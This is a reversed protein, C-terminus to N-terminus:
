GVLYYSYGYSGNVGYTYSYNYNYTERNSGYYYYYGANTIYYGYTFVPLWGASITSYYYYGTRYYTYYHLEPNGSKYYTYCGPTSYTYQACTYYTAGNYVYYYGVIYYYTGTWTYFEPGMQYVRVYYGTAPATGATYGYYTATVNMYASAGIGTSGFSPTDRAVDHTIGGVSVRIGSGLPHSAGVLPASLVTDSVAKANLKKGQSLSNKDFLPIVVTQTGKKAHLVASTDPKFILNCANSYWEGNTTEGGNSTTTYVKVRYHIESFSYGNSEVQDCIGALSATNDASYVVGLTNWGTASKLKYMLEYATQGTVGQWSVNTNRLVYADQPSTISLGM